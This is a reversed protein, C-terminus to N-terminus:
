QRDLIKKKEADYEDQNLAGSDLLEKLKKLEDAKSSAPASASANDKAAFQDPVHLEKAEIANEIDIGYRTAQGVKIKAVIYFGTKRSGFVFLNHVIANRDNYANGLKNKSYDVNTQVTLVSPMETIFAFTKDPMTGKGLRITDGEKIVWGTSTTYQSGEIKSQAEKRSEFITQASLAAPALAILLALYKM